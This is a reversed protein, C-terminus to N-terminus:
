PRTITYTNGPACIDQKLMNLYARIEAMSGSTGYNLLQGNPDTRDLCQGSLQYTPAAGMVPTAIVAALAIAAIVSTITRRLHM